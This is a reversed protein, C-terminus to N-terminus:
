KRPTKVIIIICIVVMGVYVMELSGIRMRIIGEVAIGNFMEGFASECVGWWGVVCGLKVVFDGLLLM